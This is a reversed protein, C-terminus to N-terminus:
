KKYFLILNEMRIIDLDYKSLNIKLKEIKIKAEEIKKDGILEYAEDIEAKIEKPREPVGLLSYAIARIEGGYHYTDKELISISFDDLAVIQTYEPKIAQLVFPSHTTIIFQIKPFHEVLKPVIIRQWRPHLHLDIEDILVIGPTNKLPNSKNDSPKDTDANFLVANLQVARKVLDAVLAIVNKEGASLQAVEIPILDAGIKKDFFLTQTEIRIDEYPALQPDANIIDLITEKALAWAHKQKENAWLAWCLFEEFDFREPKFAKEYAQFYGPRYPVKLERNYKVNIAAGGYYVLLPLIVLSEDLPNYGNYAKACAAFDEIFAKKEEWAKMFDSYTKPRELPPFLKVTKEKYRNLELTLEISGRREESMISKQATLSLNPVWKEGDYLAVTLETQENLCNELFRWPFKNLDEPPYISRKGEPGFVRLVLVNGEGEQNERLLIAEKGPEDTENLYTACAECAKLAEKPPHPYTVEFVASLAATYVGNLIDRESFLDEEGEKKGTIALQFFLRLFAAAADLLTSKGGGNDAILVTVNKKEALELAASRFGRFNQLELKKLRIDLFSLDTRLVM